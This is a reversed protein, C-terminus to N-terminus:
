RRLTYYRTKGQPIFLECRGPLLDRVQLAQVGVELTLDIIQLALTVLQTGIDLGPAAQRRLLAERPAAQEPTALPLSLLPCKIARASSPM